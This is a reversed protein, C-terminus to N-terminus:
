GPDAQERKYSQVRELTDKYAETVKEVGSPNLGGANGAAVYTAFFASASMLAASVVEGSEGNNQMSNALEIFQSTFGQLVEAKDDSM